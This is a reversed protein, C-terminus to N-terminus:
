FRIRRMFSEVLDHQHDEYPLRDALIDGVQDELEPPFYITLIQGFRKMPRFIVSSMHAEPVVSFSRFEEYSHYKEGIGLGHTALVYELERPQRRAYIGLLLAGFVVIGTSIKDKTLLFVIAAILIAVGALKYYWSPSKEHSVFEAAQWHLLIDDEAEAEPATPTANEQYENPTPADPTAPQESSMVVPAETQTDQEAM